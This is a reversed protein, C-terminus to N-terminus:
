TLRLSAPGAEPPEQHRPAHRAIEMIAALRVEQDPHELVFAYVEPTLSAVPLRSLILTENTGGIHDRVNRLLILAEEPTAQTALILMVSLSKIRLAAKRLPPYRVADTSLATVLLSQRNPPLSVLGEHQELYASLISVLEDWLLPGAAPHYFVSVAVNPDWHTKQALAVLQEVSLDPDRGALVYAVDYSVSDPWGDDDLVLDLLTQRILPARQPSLDYLQRLWERLRSTDEESSISARLAHAFHDDSLKPNLFLARRLDHDLQRALEEIASLGIRDPTLNQLVIRRRIRDESAALRKIERVTTAQAAREALLAIDSVKMTPRPEILLFSRIEEEDYLAPTGFSASMPPSVM